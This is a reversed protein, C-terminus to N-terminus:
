GLDLAASEPICKRSEVEKMWSMSMECDKPKVTTAFIGFSFSHGHPNKINAELLIASM